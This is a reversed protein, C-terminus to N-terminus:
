GVGVQSYRDARHSASAAPTHCNGSSRGSSRLSISSAARSNPRISNSFTSHGITNVCPTIPNRFVSHPSGDWHNQQRQQRRDGNVSENVFVQKALFQPLVAAQSAPHNERRPEPDAGSEQEPLARSPQQRRDRNECKPIGLNPAPQKEI